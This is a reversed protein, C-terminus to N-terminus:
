ALPRQLSSKRKEKEIYMSSDSAATLVDINKPLKEFTACGVSASLHLQKGDIVCSILEFAHKLKEYKDVAASENEFMAIAIFEDGGLRSVIDEGRMNNVLCESVCTLANDGAAHGYKDNVQKFNDIDIYFSAFRSSTGSLDEGNISLQKALGRRNAIGCLPDISADKEAKEKAVSIRNVRKSLAIALVIAEIAFAIIFGYRQIFPNHNLLVIRFVMSILVLSLAIAVLGAESTGRYAQVIALIFVGTVITLTGYSMIAGSIPGFAGHTVFVKLIATVLIVLSVGNLLANLRRFDNHIILFFTLFWTASFVTLGISLLYLSDILAQYQIDVFLFVQGEQLM